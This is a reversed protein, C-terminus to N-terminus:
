EKEYNYIGHIKELTDISLQKVKWNGDEKIVKVDITYTMTDVANKMKELQYNLFVNIENFEDKHEDYYKNTEKKIKYLDRVNIKVKVVAEDEKIEENLITYTLSSYQNRLIEKYTTRQEENFEEGDVFDNLENMITDDLTVYKQLYDDVADKPSMKEGCGIVLLSCTMIILCFIIRKM